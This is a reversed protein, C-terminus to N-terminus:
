DNIAAGNPAINGSIGVIDKEIVKEKDLFKYLCHEIDVYGRANLRQYMYQLSNKYAEIVEETLDAPWSWLRSMYQRDVETLDYPFQSSRSAGVVVCHKVKYQNYYEIDFQDTLTYRGSIKFFRDIDDFATSDIITKLASKFCMVETVNKVVDWNDTSNYLNVVNTDSTFDILHDVKSTLLQRQDETLAVGAMELLFLRCKPIRQRVSDITQLTQEIRQETSYIGFKTNIASTVLVGYKM